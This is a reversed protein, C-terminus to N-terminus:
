QNVTVAQVASQRSQDLARVLAYTAIQLSRRREDWEAVWRKVTSATEREREEETREAQRVPLDHPKGPCSRKIIRIRSNM